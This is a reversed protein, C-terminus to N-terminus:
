WRFDGFAAPLLPPRPRQSVGGTRVTKAVDSDLGQMLRYVSDRARVIRTVRRQLECVTM